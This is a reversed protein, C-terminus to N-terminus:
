PLSAPSLIAPIRAVRFNDFRADANHSNQYSSAILGVGTEVPLTADSWTYLTTGNAEATFQNGQRTVKLHNTATTVHIATSPQSILTIWGGPGYSYVAFEQFDPNAEFSYFRELNGVVGVTLGYSAGTRDAWRADVEVTYNQRDCIPARSKYISKTRKVLVRYEGSLYEVKFTNDEGVYWGSLPNSFDDFFNPCSVKTVFPLYALGVADARDASNVPVQSSAQTPSRAGAVMGAGWAQSLILVLIAITRHIHTIM